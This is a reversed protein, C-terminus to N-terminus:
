TAACARRLRLSAAHASARLHPSTTMHHHVCWMAYFNPALHDTVLFSKIQTQNVLDTTCNTVGIPDWSSANRGCGFVLGCDGGPPDSLCQMVQFSHCGASSNLGNRLEAFKLSYTLGAPSALLLALM